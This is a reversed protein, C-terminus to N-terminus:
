GQDAGGFLGLVPCTFEHALEIPAPTAARGPGTPGGYFGVVGALRLEPRTGTLFALRGGFCFGVTFVSAIGRGALHERAAATDLLLSEYRTQDVHPMHEFSEGRADSKATRGFYDVAVADIGREAFRLALEEYFPHVGRVDPLIVVGAGTPDSARADFALFNTGDAADLHTREGDVAAGALPPIPPRSDPDFCM